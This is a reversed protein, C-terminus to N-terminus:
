KIYKLFIGWDALPKVVLIVYFALFAKITGDGSQFQLQNIPIWNTM